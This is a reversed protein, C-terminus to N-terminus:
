ASASDDIVSRLVERKWDPRHVPWGQVDWGADRVRRPRSYHSVYRQCEREAPALERTVPWANSRRRTVAGNDILTLICPTPLDLLRWAVAELPATRYRQQIEAVDHGCARADDAFWPSPLLLRPAFLAAPSEGLPPAPGDAPVGLRELVRGRFLDGLALAVGWQQRQESAGAPLVILRGGPALRPRRAAAQRDVCVSLGLHRQALGVADVPPGVVGAAELLEAVVAEVADVVEERTLEEHM